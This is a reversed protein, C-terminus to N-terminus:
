GEMAVLSSEAEKASTLALRIAAARAEFQHAGAGDGLERLLGALASCDRAVDPHNEGYAGRAIALAREFHDRALMPHGLNKLATGLNHHISGSTPHEAGVSAEAIALARHFLDHASQHDGSVLHIYGLNNLLTAVKAHEAGYHSEFISLASELHARASDLQGTAHLVLAYNNMVTAVHPDEDGYVSRDIALAWEFHQQALDRHGLRTLVRGLNNAIASVKPSEDGYARRSLALARDLMEKAQDYQAFRNLFRGSQDLLSCTLEIPAGTSQAHTAAALAHPLVVAADGWTSPDSSDFKFVSAVLRAAVSAWVRREDDSLRDRALAAVLRHLTIVQKANQDNTEVLSYQLLAGLAQDFSLRDAMLASLGEPLSQFNDSLLRRPVGDPSLFALLNLVSISAPNQGEVQRLSLEWTMAVSDPYDGGPRQQALMEAWHSEFRKLYDGFSIRTQQILAGAQELALPLDGLAQALKRAAQESDLRGTRKRLFVVSADRTLGHLPFSRAVSGWNPNRSTILVHGGRAARASPGDDSVLPIPEDEERRGPRGPTAAGPIFERLAGPNSANDFILLWDARGELHDRLHLRISELSADRAIALGLSRALAAYDLWVNAMEEARIWWVVAYEDRYRHAYEVALQTKGVGGLGYLAQVRKNGEESTLQERLDALLDDRGTFHPNRPHPVHFVRGSAAAASSDDRQRTM